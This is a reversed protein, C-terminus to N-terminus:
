VRREVERPGRGERSGHLGERATRRAHQGSLQPLQEVLCPRPSAVHRAEGGSSRTAQERAALHRMRRAEGQGNDDDVLDRVRQAIWTVRRRGKPPTRGGAGWWATHQDVQRVLVLLAVVRAARHAASQDILRRRVERHLARLRRRLEVRVPAGQRGQGERRKRPEGLYRVVRELLAGVGSSALADDVAADEDATLDPPLHAVADGRKGLRLRRALAPDVADCVDAIGERASITPPLPRRSM